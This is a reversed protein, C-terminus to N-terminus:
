IKLGAERYVELLQSLRKEESFEKRLHSQCARRMERQQTENLDLWAQLGAMAEQQDEREFTWGTHGDKVVDPLAGVRSALLPIGHGLAELSALPLGEFRSPMIMLGMGQWADSLDTVVGHFHVHEGYTKELEERMPGDGYVHWQLDSPAQEALQCFLDPAKEHSLRGVFGISKPLPVPPRIKPPIVYNPIHRTRFPLKDTIPQSVAVRKGLFSTWEDLRFYANVPFAAQEGSHFTSIM